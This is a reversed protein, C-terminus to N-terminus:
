HPLQRTLRFLDQDRQSDSTQIYGDMVHSPVVIAVDTGANASKSAMLLAGCLSNAIDDNAGAPHDFSDKGGARTRRELMRLQTTQRANDLIKARGGSFLPVTERYIDSKPLESPTYSVGHTALADRPWSGAYCDGRAVSIGYSKIFDAVQKAAEGTTFPPRIELVADQVLDREHEAHVISTTWADRGSGGAPDTFAVYAPRKGQALFDTRARAHVGSCVAADIWESAFAASLDARFQGGWEAAASEPDEEFAQEIAAADLTPNFVRSEGTVYLVRSDNNGFHRRYADHMVGRKMYPSSMVILDGGLTLLGPKVARVLEVDPLSSEDSRLFSAEDIFVACFTMGRTSRFSGAYVKLITRHKFEIETSTERVVQSALLPSEMIAARAYNFLVNAQETTPAVCAAIAFEGPALRDRYDQALRYRARCEGFRTKGSRRSPGAYFETIASAPFRDRQSIQHAIAREDADLAHGDGDLIKAVIHWTRFTPAGM